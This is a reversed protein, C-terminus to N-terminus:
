VEGGDSLTEWGGRQSKKAWLHCFGIVIVDRKEMVTRM